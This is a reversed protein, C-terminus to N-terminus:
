FNFYLIGDKKEFVPKPQPAPTPTPPPPPPEQQEPPEEQKEPPPAPANDIEALKKELKSLKKPANPKPKGERKEKLQARLQMAKERAIRLSERRQETFVFEKRKGKPGKTCEENVNETEETHSDIMSESEEIM